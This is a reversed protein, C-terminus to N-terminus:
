VTKTVISVLLVHPIHSLLLAYGGASAGVVADSRVCSAGLAGAVGGTVYVLVVRLRGQNRELDIAFLTQTIVNLILHFPNEHILM